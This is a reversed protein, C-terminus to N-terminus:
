SDATLKHLFGDLMRKVESPPDRVVEPNGGAKGDIINNGLLERPTPRHFGEVLQEGAQQSKYIVTEMADDNLAIQREQDSFLVDDMEEAIDLADIGDSRLDQLLSGLFVFTPRPIRV